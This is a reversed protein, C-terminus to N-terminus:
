FVGTCESGLFQAICAVFLVSFAQIDVVKMIFIGGM